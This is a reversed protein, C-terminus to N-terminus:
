FFNQYGRIILFKGSDSYSVKKPGPKEMPLVSYKHVTCSTVSSYSTFIGRSAKNLYVELPTLSFQTSTFIGFTLRCFHFALSDVLLYM